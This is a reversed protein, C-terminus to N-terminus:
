FEFENDYAHLEKLIKAYRFEIAYHDILVEAEPHIGEITLTEWNFDRRSSSIIEIKNIYEKLLPKLYNAHAGHAAIIYVEKGNDSLHKAKKVLNYTRGTARLKDLVNM